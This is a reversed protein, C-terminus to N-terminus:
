SALAQTICRRHSRQLGHKLDVSAAHEPLLPSQSCQSVTRSSAGGHLSEVGAQGLPIGWRCAAVTTHHMALAQPEAAGQLVSAALCDCVQIMFDPIVRHVVTSNYYQRKALQLFNECTQVPCAM